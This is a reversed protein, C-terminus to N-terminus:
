NNRVATFATSDKKKIQIGRVCEISFTSSILLQRSRQGQTEWKRRWGTTYYYMSSIVLIIMLMMVQVTVRLYVRSELKVGEFLPADM